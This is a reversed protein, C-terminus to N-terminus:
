LELPFKVTHRRSFRKWFRARATLAIQEAQDPNFDRCAAYTRVIHIIMAKPGWLRAFNSCGRNIDVPAIRMRNIDVVSFQITGDDAQQWLINGPSYDRHLIGQDHMHATFCAFATAVPQWITEDAQGFEYFRHAYPCHISVFYSYGLLRFHNREELYAVPEPTPVNRSLLLTAYRYARLGKPQRLSSSYVLLNPGTPRHYRKVNLLLGGPATFTKILNRGNHITTGEGQAMLRPLTLIFPRLAEYHPSLILKM